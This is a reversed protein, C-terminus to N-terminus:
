TWGRKVQGIQSELTRPRNSMISAFMSKKETGKHDLQETNAYTYQANHDNYRLYEQGNQYCCFEEKEIDWYWNMVHALDPGYRDDDVKRSSEGGFRTIDFEFDPGFQQLVPVPNSPDKPEIRGVPTRERDGPLIGVESIGDNSFLDNSLSLRAPVHIWYGGDEQEEFTAVASSLVFWPHRDRGQDMDMVLVHGTEEWRGTRSKSLVCGLCIFRRLTSDESARVKFSPESPHGDPYRIGRFWTKVYRMKNLTSSDTTLDNAVYMRNSLALTTSGRLKGLPIVGVHYRNMNKKDTDVDLSGSSGLDYAAKWFQEPTRKRKEFELRELIMNESWYVLFFKRYDEVTVEKMFSYAPRYKELGREIFADYKDHDRLEARNDLASQYIIYFVEFKNLRESM